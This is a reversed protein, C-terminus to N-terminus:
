VGRAQAGTDSTSTRSAAQLYAQIDNDSYRVLKGIKLFRPGKGQVRWVNLTGKTTGIQEAAGATDWIKTITNITM